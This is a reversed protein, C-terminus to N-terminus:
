HISSDSNILCAMLASPLRVESRLRSLELAFALRGRLRLLRNACGLDVTDGVELPKSAVTLFLQFYNKILLRIAILSNEHFFVVFCGFLLNQAKYFGGFVTEM